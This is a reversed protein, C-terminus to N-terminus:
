NVLSHIPPGSLRVFKMGAAGKEEGV